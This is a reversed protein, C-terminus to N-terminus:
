CIEKYLITILATHHMNYVAESCHMFLCKHFYFTGSSPLDTKLNSWHRVQYWAGPKTGSRFALGFLNLVPKVLSLIKSEVYLSVFLHCFVSKDRSKM